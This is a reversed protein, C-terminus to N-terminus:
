KTPNSEPITILSKAANAIAEQLKQNDKLVDRDVQIAEKPLGSITGQLVNQRLSKWHEPPILYGTREIKELDKLTTHLLNSARKKVVADEPTRGAKRALARITKEDLMINRRTIRAEQPTLPSVEMWGWGQNRGILNHGSLHVFWHTQTM